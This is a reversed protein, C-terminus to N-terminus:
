ETDASGGRVADDQTTAALARPRAADGHACLLHGLQHGVVPGSRQQRGIDSAM